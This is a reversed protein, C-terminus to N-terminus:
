PIGGLELLPYPLLCAPWGRRADLVWESNKQNFHFTCRPKTARPGERLADVVHVLEGVTIAPGLTVRIRGWQSKSRRAASSVSAISQLYATMQTRAQRRGLIKANFTKHSGPAALGTLHYGRGSVILLPLSSDSDTKGSPKMRALHPHSIVVTRVVDRTLRTAIQYHKYGAVNASFLVEALVQYPVRTDALILLNGNFPRGGLREQKVMARRLAQLRKVVPVVFYSEPEGRKYSANVRGDILTAVRRGDIYVESRTVVVTTGWYVRTESRSRPLDLARSRLRKALPDDLLLMEAAKRALERDLGRSVLTRYFHVAIFVIPGNLEMDRRTIWGLGEFPCRKWWHDGGQFFKRNHTYAPCFQTAAAIFGEWEPIPAGGPHPLTMSNYSWRLWQVIKTILHPQKSCSELLQELFVVRQKQPIDYRSNLSSLHVELSIPLKCSNRSDDDVATNRM